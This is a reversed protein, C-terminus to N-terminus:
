TIPSLPADVQSPQSLRAEGLTKQLQLKSPIMGRDILSDIPLSKRVEEAM